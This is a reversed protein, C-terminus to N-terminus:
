SNQSMKANYLKQLNANEFEQTNAHNCKCMYDKQMKNETKIKRLM